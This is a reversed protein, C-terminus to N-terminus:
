PSIRHRKSSLSIYSGYHEILRVEKFESVLWEFIKSGISELLVWEALSRVDVQKREKLEEHLLAQSEHDAIREFLYEAEVSTLADAVQAQSVNENVTFGALAAVLKDIEETTPYLVKLLFEYGSSYKNKIHTATGYCKFRGGVMIAMTNCLSEAEDMSHTTLIISCKQRKIRNVVEWMNKRANPDMGASPEDLFVVPPNGITAIAVSLKRKNGGSLNTARVNVYKELVMDKIQKDVFRSILNKPIGKIRAYLELHEVPTLVESLADFQPCYGINYRAQALDNVVNYGSIFAEGSTPGYEGTLIRFCTTKGAGNVGLLAFAQQPPVVFSAEQVAIKVDSKNFINGYIKRLGSVKVAVDGPSSNLAEVRMREVDEDEVFENPGPDKVAVLNRFFTVTSLWEIMFVLISGIVTHLFMFVLDAGVIDWDYVGPLSSLGYALQYAVRNSVKILGFSLCFIPSAIRLPYVLIDQVERTLDSILLLFWLALAGLAGIILNLLFVFFQAISYSKFLFSVTYTYPIIAFGFLAFLAWVANYVETPETLSKLDFGKILLPIIIGPIQYKVLDWVFASAWYAPISVGSVLHQHKINNEREKVIFTVLGTPIFAMGCAFILSILFSSGNQALNQQTSTLPLPFNYFKLKYYADAQPNAINNVAALAYESAFTPASLFATSNAFVYVGSFEMDSQSTDANYFSGLRFPDVKRSLYLYNDYGTLNFDQSSVDQVQAEYFYQSNEGMYQYISDEAPNPAALDYMVHQKSDYHSFSLHRAPQSEYLSFQTLLILGLIVFVIPLFIELMIGKLDRKSFIYRKKILAMFHSFFLIGKVRHEAINFEDSNLIESDFKEAKPIPEAEVPEAIHLSKRHEQTGGEDGRSVRIFVEELTTVSIGYTEVNLKQLNEDLEEFFAKFKHTSEMPIEFLIEASATNFVKSEPLHRMVLAQIRSFDPQKSGEISKVISLNYGVGFRKKLFLPSGLCYLKGQSMIAIRDALIDAEEMYHTTLIIIRNRKERKLMDWMKRRATLDMGSTPEDLMVVSSGGILAIALSLKRKQGGSLNGAKTKRKDALDIDILKESIMAEIEASDRVGKFKCFLYLHEEVTLTKFLIDHQPCAGLIKRIESMDTRFNLNNVYMEGATPPIMGTLMSITTTKGAGNHGLLAFIQGKFMDLDLGDVAVKDDFHKRLGRVKMAQGNEIQAILSQDIPEINQNEMMVRRRKEDEERILETEEESLQRGSAHGKWFSPTFPFYWPLSVGTETKIVKDLYLALTWYLICDIFLFLLGTGVSYYYFNDNINTFDIGVEAGEFSMLQIFAQSMAVTNLVSMGMLTGESTNSTVSLMSFYSVFFVLMGVLVATKSRNFLSSMLVSFALCSQGYLYFLLFVITKSSLTFIGFSIITCVGAIVLYILSYMIFWSLWYPTDKLGMMKMSERVKTEKETVVKSIMRCVPVLSTIFWFFSALGGFNSMFPDDLYKIGHMPVFVSAIPPPITM